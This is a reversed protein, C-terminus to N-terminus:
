FIIMRFNLGTTNTIYSIEILTLYSNMKIKIEGSEQHNKLSSLNNLKIACLSVDVLTETGIYM